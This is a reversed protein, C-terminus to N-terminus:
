PRFPRAGARGAATNEDADVRRACRRNQTGRESLKADDWGDTALVLDIAGVGPRVGAGTDATPPRVKRHLFRTRRIAIM